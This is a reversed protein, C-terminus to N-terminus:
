TGACHGSVSPPSDTLPADDPGPGFAALLDNLTEASIEEYTFTVTGYSHHSDEECIRYGLTELYDCFKGAIAQWHQDM